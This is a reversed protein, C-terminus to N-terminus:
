PSAVHVQDKRNRVRSVHERSTMTAASRQSVSPRPRSGIPQGPAPRGRRKSRRVGGLGEDLARFRSQGRLCPALHTGSGPNSGPNGGHSPPTRTGQVIAARRRLFSALLADPALGEAHIWRRLGRLPERAQEQQTPAHSIKAQEGARPHPPIPLRARNLDTDPCGPPPELGRMRM